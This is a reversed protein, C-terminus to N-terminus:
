VADRYAFAKEMAGWPLDLLFSATWPKLVNKTM